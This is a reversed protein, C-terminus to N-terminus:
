SLGYEARNILEMQMEKNCQVFYANYGSIRVLLDRYEDPNAMAARMTKSSIVNFQMQMGGLDCYAKAYAFLNDVTQKHTDKASPTVKVNFAINNNLTHPDLKAVASLNDLLNKSATPEPTLGPTFPKGALRGSPLAGTLTGFAVHNSMSWWGTTYRGGRFNRKEWLYDSIFKTVSNAMQTAEESASGFQAVSKMLVQRMDEFGVFNAKIATVLQQMSYKKDEFVLKKVALLSDTIDALGICAIGSSNYKAGGLTVDKGKEICGEVCGSMMPTPRIISHAEGLKNNYDISYDLLSFTQKKFADYFEEFTKFNEPDGTKPGLTWRMLPHYGNNIAMELCAVTNFMMCNTHGIHKGTITPEVCGTASWNNLENQPYHFGDLSKMVIEDNHISPTGHTNVNVECLRKLYAVSNKTNNFRANINPDRLGLMETVKLIIYTMDNVADEGDQTVGGVTIAQNAGSAGFLHNGMDPVLPQHDTMAMFLCGMLDISHKVFDDKEQKTKLKSISNAFYPQMLQDLRGISFGANFNELHVAIWHIWIAQMAEDYTEVNGKAIKACIKATNLLENKRTECTETQAQNFAEQSLHETYAVIGQYCAKIANLTNIKQIDSKNTKLLEDECEKVIGVAGIKLFKEHDIVTHSFATTKWLYNVAFREDTKQCTPEGYKNRVYERFNRNLWFPFLESNVKKIEEDTMRKYPTYPRTDTSFLEAWIALAVADPYMIVGIEKGTTTGALLDNKRIVPKHKEMLNKFMLGQRLTPDWATGDNQTEFGNKKHWDTILEVRELCFEPMENLHRDLFPKLRPFDDLKFKSLYEDEGIFKVGKDVFDAPMYEKKAKKVEDPKIEEMHADVQRSKTIESSSKKMKKSQMDKLIVSILFNFYQIKLLNGSTSIKNKLLLLMIENPPLSAMLKLAVTNEAILICEAQDIGKLVKAKGDKFVITQAVNGNETTIGVSLNNWGNDYRLFDNYKKITNFLTAMAKLAIRVTTDAVGKKADALQFKQGAVFIKQTEQTM